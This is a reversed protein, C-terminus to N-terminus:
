SCKWIYDSYTTSLYTAATSSNSLSSSPISTGTTATASAYRKWGGTSVFQAYNMDTGYFARYGIKKVNNSVYIQHLSYCGAFAYSGIDNGGWLEIYTLNNCSYFAYMGITTVKSPISLSSIGVDYFAYHGIVQVGSGLKLETVYLCKYFAYDGITTVGTGISISKLALSQYFAYAGISKVNNPIVLKGIPCNRFAYAGITEINSGITLNNLKTGDFAYDIIATVNYVVDKYTITDAINATRISARQKAVVAKGDKIAYRVGDVVCYVYGDAAVDNNNCDWIVVNGTAVWNSHWGSPRSPAECYIFLNHCNSFAGSGVTTVCSPITVESLGTCNYFAVDGISTVNKGLVVEELMSCNYFSGYLINGGTITVSKLSKPIFYSTYSGSEYYQTTNVYGDENYAGFVVGFLTTKSAVTASKDTGIFPLTISELVSCRYFANKGISVVSDSVTIHKLNPCVEFAYSSINTVGDPVTFSSDNKGAAYVILTKGDKTYLNGDISTYSPNDQAVTISTIGYCSAFVSSGINTVSSPITIETILPCDRFAANGINLVGEEIILTELKWCCSFAAVDVTEVNGPITVGILVSCNNFANREITIVSDPIAISELKVSYAFAYEGITQCVSGEEFELSTISYTYSSSYNQPYFLYAPIRTVSKGIIVKTGGAQPGVTYFVSNNLALDDMAVANFNINVLRSTNSFAYSGISTVLEPITISILSTCNYFAHGGISTIVDPIIINTIGTCNYFAGYLINGGTVTISKLTEPIYYTSFTTTSTSSGYYYQKTEVGGEYSLYGFIYGLPYQYTDSETKISNGVFPLTISELSSCGSFPAVGISEVSDPILAVNVSKCNKFAYDNIEKVGNGITVSTASSCEAFAYNGITEVSGPVEISELAACKYFAYNDINSVGNVITLSTASICEAFAYNGITEVSGPVKISELAACKYFAHSGISSVGNVITASTLSTCSAFAYGGLKEVSGPVEISELSACEYFAYGGISSVGDGITVSTVASCGAFAYVDISTVSEPIIIRTISACGYFACIGIETVSNPIVLDTLLIGNLNLNAGGHLPNGYFDNFEIECWKAIDTIHVDKLHTCGKFAAKGISKCVSGEEFAVSLIYPSSSSSYFLYEPIKTVNAGITVTIGNGAIGAGEFLNDSSVLNNMESACFYINELGICNKFASQYIHTISEPINVTKLSTCNYFANSGIQTVGNLLTVSVINECNYLAGYPVYEGSITVFKLSEPIYYTNSTTSHISGGRYTQLRAVGGDYNSTGFIYGLPYQYTDSPTKKVNGIFPVTISELSSCGSFAGASISEVSNPISISLLNICNKFAQTGIQTVGSSIEVEVLNTCGSFMGDGLITVKEPIDISTLGTCSNFAYNEMNTIGDGLKVSKLSTCKYFANKGISTVSGNIVVSELGNCNYFAGYLIDGGIVTVNKLTMPVYYVSYTTSTTSYSYYYQTTEASGDYSSTGFIYGLPYQYTDSSTKAADGVFPLTISELSSCGSFTGEGITKVSGPIIIETINTCNQFANKEITEVGDNITVTTLGTCGSFAWEGITKVSGPIIIEAINTCNQFAANEITEVGDHITVTTLGACNYFASVGITRVSAPIVITALSTCASFSNSGISTTGDNIIVSDLATCARFASDGIMKVSGSINIETLSTCSYFAYKDISTVEAGLTVNVINKCNYFTGYHVIGGVITINKLSTPIYYRISSYGSKYYQETARSGNYDTNGFIYGFLTISSAYSASNVGGAFPLTMSELASCGSFAGKGISTVNNPIVISKLKNCGKFASDEITTCKGDAEFEVTIFNKNNTSNYSSFLYMPIVTVNKGIIVKVNVNESGVGRFMKNSESIGSMATADYKIEVIGTCGYFADDEISLVGSPITLSTLGTCAFFAYESIIEIKDSMALNVLSSCEYFARAGVVSCVSGEVFEVGTLSTNAWFMYSPIKTVAKGVSLHIGNGQAGARYFVYSSSTLDNMAVADFFIEELATCQAFAYKEITNLGKGLTICKLASCNYFAYQEIVTVSDSITINEIASCGYFAYQEIKTVSDSISINKLSSCGNFAYKSIVNIKNSLVVYSLQSCESFAYEGISQVNNEMTVRELSTCNEFVRNGLSTVGNPISINVLSTCGSFVSGNIVTIGSGIDVSTLNTCDTFVSHGLSTVSKPITVQTLNICGRFAGNGISTVNNPIVVSNLGKYGCFAYKPIETVTEPIIIDRTLVGDIYLNEAYYLPTGFWSGDSFKVNLWSILDTIYVNVLNESGMFSYVDVTELSAPVTLSNLNKCRMFAGACIRTIGECLIVEELSNCGRFVDVSVIDGSVVKVTKLTAPVYDNNENYTEAGFVYGLHSLTTQSADGGVLPLELCQLAECTSFAGFCISTVYDPISIKSVTDDIVGTIACTDATSTFMFNAMEPSIDFKAVIDKDIVVTYVASQSLLEEGSYWGIFRYGLLTVTAELRVTENYPHSGSNTVTGISTDISSVNYSNRSYYLKLVLSGNGDINGSLISKDADFTFHEFTEQKATATTDTVGHLKVVIPKEYGNMEVNELYHEITYITDTNEIWRATYTASRDVKFTCVLSSFLKTEGHFWGLFKYGPNTEASLTIEEDYAYEGAGIVKGGKIKDANVSVVYTDRSYYVKLVLTGSGNINGSLVSKKEDLTFHSYTIPDVTAKTDTTGTCIEVIPEAYGNKNVNEFYYEVTYVTDNRAKWKATIKTNQVIPNSFDYNWGEFDYGERSISPAVIVDGEIVTVSPIVEDCKTDFEVVCFPKRHIIVTYMSKQQGDITEFIYFTNDGYQLNVTKLKVVEDGFIDLSVIYDATGVITIENSFAFLSVDNNVTGRIVTGNVELTKFILGAAEKIVYDCVTCIQDNIADAAASPVHKHENIKAGCACMNFHHTDDSFLEKSYTHALKAIPDQKVIVTQCVSCHSGETLGETTCTPSVAKDETEKHGLEKIPTRAVIVIKCMFCHSGETYGIETCTPKKAPDTVITHGSPQVVMQQVLIMNCGSCYSGESLGVETCTPAIAELKTAIHNSKNVTTQAVLVVECVSCHKGETLGTATCTPAVAEDIVEKHGLAKVVTQAVLVDSCVSCHKGETLGTETCTPSVAEDTVEKHGLAEVVTQAVLVDSCVSCHKGETLGTETCTPSVAEDITVTHGPAQIIIAKRELEEDCGSCYTVVDYSGDTECMTEIRNEIVAALPQHKHATLIVIGLVLASTLLLAVSGIIISKAKNAAIFKTVRAFFSKIKGSFKSM